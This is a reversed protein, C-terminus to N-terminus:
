FLDMPLIKRSVKLISLYNPKTSSLTEIESDKEEFNESNLINNLQKIGDLIGEKNPIGRKYFEDRTLIGQVKSNITLSILTEDIAENNTRHQYDEALRILYNTNVCGYNDTRDMKRVINEDPLCFRCGYCSNNRCIEELHTSYDIVEMEQKVDKLELM